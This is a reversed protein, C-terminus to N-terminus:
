NAILKDNVKLTLILSYISKAFVIASLLLQVNVDYLKSYNQEKFAIANKGINASVLPKM